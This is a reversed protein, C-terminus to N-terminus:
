AAEQKLVIGEVVWLDSVLLPYSVYAYPLYGYGKVGWASGWSNRFKIRGTKDDHGVLVIAHGGIMREGFSPLPVIGTQAVSASMLSEYVSIGAYVPLRMSLAAKVNELQRLKGIRYYASIRRSPEDASAEASPAKSFDSVIYPWLIERCAGIKAGVKIGTRLSAGSDEGVTGMSERERYYIGLRSVDVFAQQQLLFFEIIGALAQATCSGLDLQDEVPSFLDSLDSAASIRRHDRGIFLKDLLREFPLDRLDPIDIRLGGRRILDALGHLQTLDFDIM